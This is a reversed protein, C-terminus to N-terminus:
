PQGGKHDEGLESFASRCLPSLQDPKSKLCARVAERRMLAVQAACLRFADDRCARRQAETAQTEPAPKSPAPQALAPASALLCLAVLAGGTFRM